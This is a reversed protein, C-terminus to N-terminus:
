RSLGPVDAGALERWRGGSWFWIVSAKEIFADDIGDHDLPPLPPDAKPNHQRINSPSAVSIGRSYGIQGPNVVQLRGADPEAAMEDIQSM